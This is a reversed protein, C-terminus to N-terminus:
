WCTYIETLVRHIIGCQTTLLTTIEIKGIQKEKKRKKAMTKIVSQNRIDIYACLPVYNNCVRCVLLIHTTHLDLVGACNMSICICGLGNSYDCNYFKWFIVSMWSGLNLSIPLNLALGICRVIGNRNFICFSQLPWFACQNWFELCFLYTNHQLIDQVENDLMLM